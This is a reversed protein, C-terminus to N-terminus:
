RYLEADEGADTSGHIRPYVSFGGPRGQILLDVPIFDKILPIPLRVGAFGGRRDTGVALQDGWLGTPLAGSMSFRSGSISGQMPPLQYKVGANRESESLLEHDLVRPYAPGTAERVLTFTTDEREETGSATKGSRARLVAAPLGQIGGVSGKARQDADQLAVHHNKDRLQVYFRDATKGPLPYSQSRVGWPTQYYVLLERENILNVGRSAIEHNGTDGDFLAAKLGLGNPGYLEPNEMLFQKSMRLGQNEDKALAALKRTAQAAAPSDPFDDIVRSLYYERAGREKTKEAANLLAVAAKEKLADMKERSSGALQHYAMARQFMGRDEYAQALVKYVETSDASNPHNRVYTVGADIVPQASVPNNVAANYANSGLLIANVMGLTAAGAPGAVAFAGAGYLLNKRLLDDGLLVYKATELRRESQADRFSALLNYESSALLTAARKRAQPTVGSRVLQAVIKKAEEHRGRMELAVAEADRAADSLPKGRHKRDLTVAVRELQNADRLTLALLLDATDAHEEPSRKPEARAALTGDTARKELAKVARTLARLAEKSEPQFFSALEAHFHAAGFDQRKAAAASKALQKRALAAVKKAQMIEVRRRIEGNRPDDPYRKLHDLDRALARREEIPMDGDALAYLQSIATEVAAGVYNGSAVGVLDVSGLLRNVVGGWFNTTSQRVLLDSHQLDDHQIIAQLRAKREPSSASRLAEKQAALFRSRDDISNNAIDQARESLGSIVRHQQRLRADEKKLFGLHGSVAERNDLLADIMLDRARKDIEDPFFLPTGSPKEFPDIEPLPELIKELAREVDQARLPLALAL